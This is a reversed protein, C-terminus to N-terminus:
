LAASAEELPRNLPMISILAMKLGSHKNDKKLLFRLAAYQGVKLSRTLSHSADRKANRAESDVQLNRTYRQHMSKPKKKLQAHLEMASQKKLLMFNKGSVDELLFSYAGTTQILCEDGHCM